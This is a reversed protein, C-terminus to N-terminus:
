PMYRMETGPTLAFYFVSNAKGTLGALNFVGPQYNYGQIEVKVYKVIAGTAPLTVKVNTAPSLGAVIPTKGACNTYGCVVLSQAALKAAAVKTADASVADRSMSLYRAGVETARALTSYTYFLRGLEATGAFLLLLVPFVIALEIISSGDEGPGIRGLRFKAPAVIKM